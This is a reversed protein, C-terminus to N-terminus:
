QVFMCVLKLGAIFNTNIALKAIFPQMICEGAIFQAARAHVCVSM